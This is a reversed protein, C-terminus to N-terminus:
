VVLCRRGFLVGGLGLIQSVLVEGGKGGGWAVRGERAGRRGDHGVDHQDRVHDDGHPLVLRLLLVAPLALLALLVASPCAEMAARGRQRCHRQDVQISVSACTDLLESRIHRAARVRANPPILLFARWPRATPILNAIPM